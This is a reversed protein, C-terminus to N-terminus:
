NEKKLLPNDIGMNERDNGLYTMGAELFNAIPSKFGENLFDIAFTGQSSDYEIM